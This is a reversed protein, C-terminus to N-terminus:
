LLSMLGLWSQHLLNCLVTHAVCVDRAAASEPILNVAICAANQATRLDSIDLASRALRTWLETCLSIGEDAILLREAEVEADTRILPAEDAPMGAGPAPKKAAAAPAAAAPKSAAKKKDAESKSKGDDMGTKQPILPWM